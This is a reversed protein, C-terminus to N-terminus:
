ALTTDEDEDHKRRRRAAGLLFWGGIALGAALLLGGGIAAGTHALVDGTSPPATVQFAASAAGSVAGTLTVTHQGTTTGAPVTFTLDVNGHEDATLTGLDVPTAGLVATVTDGASFGTGHVTQTDGAALSPSEVVEEPHATITISAAVSSAPDVGNTATVTFAFTGATTPTGTIKGTEDMSLGTPLDGDTVTVTPTPAGDVTFTFPAYDQWTVGDGPDGSITPAIEAITITDDVTATGAPNTATVTFTFTGAVTPTGAITGTTTDLTLGDPLAGATVTMDVPLPQGSLTYTFPTYDRTVVGDPADGAITPASSVTIEDDLTLVVGPVTARVTFAYTGTATPTGTITGDTGLTLGPPLPASDSTLTVTPVPDGGLTYGFTPYATGLVGDPAAGSISPTSGIVITDDLTATGGTSTATLTYTFRGATTPTGSLDGTTSDLTLGDPLSGATVEVTPLPTGGLSYSYDPYPTDTTWDPADGSV